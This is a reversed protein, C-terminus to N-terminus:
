DAANTTPRKGLEGQKGAASGGKTRTRAVGRTRGATGRFDGHLQIPDPQNVASAALRGLALGPAGGGVQPGGTALHPHGHAAQLGVGERAQQSLLALGWVQHHHEAAIAGHEPGGAVHGGQLHWDQTEVHAAVQTKEGVVALQQMAAGILRTAILEPLPQAFVVEGQLPAQHQLGQDVPAIAHGLRAIAMPLGTSPASIAAAIAALIAHVQGEVIEIEAGAEILDRGGTQQLQLNIALHHVLVPAIAQDDGGGGSGRAVRHRGPPRDEMGADVRNHDVRNARHAEGAPGHHHWGARTQPNPGQAFAVAADLKPLIAGGGGHELGAIAAHDLLGAVMGQHHDEVLAGGIVAGEGALEM